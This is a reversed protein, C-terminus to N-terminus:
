SKKEIKHYSPHDKILPKIGTPMPFAVKIFNDEGVSVIIGVGFIKHEIRDGLQYSDGSKHKELTPKKVLYSDYKEKANKYFDASINKLYDTGMEKVFRSVTEVEMHGYLM